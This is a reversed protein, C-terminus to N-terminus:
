QSQKFTENSQNNANYKMKNNVIFIFLIVYALIRKLRIAPDKAKQIKSNLIWFM